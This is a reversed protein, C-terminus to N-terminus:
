KKPQIESRNELNTKLSKKISKPIWKPEMEPDFAWPPGRSPGWPIGPFRLGRICLIRGEKHMWRPDTPHPQPRGPQEPRVTSRGLEFALSSPDFAGARVGPQEPRVGWSSRWAARTSRGLEFALSSLDFGGARVGPMACAIGPMQPPIGPMPPPQTLGGRHWANCACHRADSRDM